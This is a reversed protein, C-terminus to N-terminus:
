VLSKLLNSYISYESNQGGRGVISAHMSREIPIEFTVEDQVESVIAQIAKKAAAIAQKTGRITFTADSGMKENDRKSIDIEAGSDTQLERIAAGQKGIVRALARGPVTITQSQNHEKEYEMLEVLEKKAGDVGKKGGRISISNNDRESDEASDARPFNIRVSYKNELRQAYAGQKGILAGRELGAPMPVSVTTEDALQEIQRQIRKKAEEVNEKRGQIKVHSQSSGTKAKKGKVVTADGDKNASSSSAGGEDFDIRVGLEERLKQVGAGGKGVIHSVFRQEVDFEAVQLPHLLHM